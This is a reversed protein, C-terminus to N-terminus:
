VANVNNYTPVFMQNEKAPESIVSTTINAKKLAMLISVLGLLGLHTDILILSLTLGIAFIVNLGTPPTTTFTTPTKSLLLCRHRTWTSTSTKYDEVWKHLRATLTMKGLNKWNRKFSARGRPTWPPSGWNPQLLKM